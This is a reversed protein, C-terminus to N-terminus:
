ITDVQKAAIMPYRSGGANSWEFLFVMHSHKIVGYDCPFVEVAAQEEYDQNIYRIKEYVPHHNVKAMECGYYNPNKKLEFGQEKWFDPNDRLVWGFYQNGRMSSRKILRKWLNSPLATEMIVIHDSYACSTGYSPRM